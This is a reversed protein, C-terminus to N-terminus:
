ALVAASHMTATGLNNMLLCFADYNVLCLKRQLLTSVLLPRVVPAPTPAAEEPAQDFLSEDIKTAMKKM